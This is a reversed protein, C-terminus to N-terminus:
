KKVTLLEEYQVTAEVSVWHFDAVNESSSISRGATITGYKLEHRSKNWGPLIYCYNPLV